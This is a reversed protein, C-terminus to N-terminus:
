RESLARQVLRELDELHFPKSLVPAHTAKLFSAYERPESTGSVFVLRGLLTPQGKELERYLGVGDLKPMRLDSVILDYSRAAIKELAERGNRAMDVEHGETALVEAMFGAVMPEDDVVLILARRTEATSMHDVPM